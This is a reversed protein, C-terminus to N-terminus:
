RVFSLLLEYIKISPNSNNNKTGKYKKKKNRNNNDIFHLFFVSASMTCTFLIKWLYNTVKWDFLIGNKAKSSRCNNVKLMSWYPSCRPCWQFFRRLILLITLKLTNPRRCTFIYSLLNRFKVSTQITLPFTQAGVGGGGGGGGWWWWVLTQLVGCSQQGITQLKKDMDFSLFFGISTRNWM